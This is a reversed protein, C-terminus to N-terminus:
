LNVHQCCDFFTLGLYHIEPIAPWRLHVGYFIALPLIINLGIGRPDPALNTVKLNESIKLEIRYLTLSIFPGFDREGYLTTGSSQPIVTCEASQYLAVCEQIKDLVM